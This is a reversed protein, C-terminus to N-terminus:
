VEESAEHLPEAVSRELVLRPALAFGSAAFFRVLDHNNWAAQSQLSRVGMRDLAAILENMLARGVGRERSQRDVGVADLVAVAQARGFEGRLIRVFAYGALAGGRRIGIPIFDQPHAAAAAFRKEFFRRRSLGTHARDIAIVREVDATGLTCADRDRAAAARVM